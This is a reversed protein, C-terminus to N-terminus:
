VRDREWWFYFLQVWGRNRTQSQSAVVEANVFRTKLERCCPPYPTAHFYGYLLPIAPDFLLDIKLKKLLEGLLQICRCDWWCHM